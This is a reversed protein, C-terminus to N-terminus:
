KFYNKILRIIQYLDEEKHASSIFNAEFASPSLYVGNQFMYRYFHNFQDINTSQVDKFNKPISDSFFLSFMPGITCLQVKDVPLIQMLKEYFKLAKSNLDTYFAPNELIELTAIGATMAVPNGSLTGAQYVPGQPSLLDMLDARGGFAAAPFGGGIIKGLCCLDPKVSCISQAGQLGLRFGSIVEDFILLSGFKISIERLFALYGEEPLVVGMNAPYPELLIAAIEDGYEKFVQIVSSKDNFPVSLTYRAIENPVGSSSSSQLGAVGSGAAVLLHDAHGHYCGDFKLIFKRETAARAIRVASMVAETGSSVFRIKEISQIQKTIKEALEVEPISPIGYSTGNEIAELVKQKVKPHNHGQIFVGWSLCLDIYKNGDVDYIYCADAKKVFVPELGVSKLARVPSNVGGPTVSLARNYLDKSINRQM